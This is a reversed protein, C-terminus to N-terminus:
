NKKQEKLVKQIGIAIDFYAEGRNPWTTVPRAHKPLAQLKGFPAYWWIIPRLIIPIVHKEEKM